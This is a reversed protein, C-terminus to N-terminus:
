PNRVVVEGAGLQLNLTVVPDGDDGADIVVDGTGLLGGSDFPRVGAVDVDIDGAGIWYNVKVNTDRPILVKINGALLNVSASKDEEADALDTLDVTFDGVLYSTGQDFNSSDPDWTSSDAILGGNGFSNFFNNVGLASGSFFALLALIVAFSSLSGSSWGRFANVVIAGGTLTLAAGLIILSLRSDLVVDGTVVISVAYVLLLLGVAVGFVRVGPKPVVVVPGAPKTSEPLPQRYPTTGPPPAAAPLPQTSTPSDGDPLNQDSVTNSWTHESPIHESPIHATEGAAQSSQVLGITFVAIASLLCIAFVSGTIPGGNPGLLFDGRAMGLIAIGAAGLAMADFDGKALRELLSKGTQRDPLLMWAAAYVVAAAGSVVLSAVALGRLLTRDQNFKTAFAGIVGGLWRDSERYLGLRRIQTYVNENM